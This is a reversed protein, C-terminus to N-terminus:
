FGEEALYAFDRAPIENLPEPGDLLAEIVKERENEDAFEAGPFGGNDVGKEPFVYEGFAYGRRGVLDRDDAM